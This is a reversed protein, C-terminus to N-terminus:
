ELLLQIEDTFMALVKEDYCITGHGRTGKERIHYNEAGSVKSGLIGFRLADQKFLGENDNLQFFSLHKDVNTVQYLKEPYWRSWIMSYPYDPGQGLVREWHYQVWRSPESLKQPLVEKVIEHAEIIPDITFALDIKISNKKIKEAFKVVTRAGSSHSVLVIKPSINLEKARLLYKNLCLYANQIGRPNSQVSNNIDKLLQAFSFNKFETLGSLIEAEESPFSYWDVSSSKKLKLLEPQIGRSLGSWKLDADTKNKLIQTLNQYVKDITNHSLKEGFCKNLKNIVVPIYPEYSGTGEFALILVKSKKSPNCDSLRYNLTHRNGHKKVMVQELITTLVLNLKEENEIHGDPTCVQRVESGHGLSISTFCLLYIIIKFM